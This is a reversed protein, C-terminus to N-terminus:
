ALVELDKVHWYEVGGGPMPRQIIFPLKKELLEKEAIISNDLTMRDVTVFPKNGANLQKTRQGLVKAREYKTLIPITTHLKDVIINNENRTVLSAAYIEDYNHFRSEPHLLLIDDHHVIKKNREGLVDEHIEGSAGQESDEDDPAGGFMESLLMGGNGGPADEGDEEEDKEENEELESEDLEEDGGDGDGAVHDSMENGDEVDSVVDDVNEDGSEPDNIEPEDHEIDSM